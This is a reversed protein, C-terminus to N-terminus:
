RASTGAGSVGLAVITVPAGLGLEIRRRRGLLEGGAEVPVDDDLEIAVRECWFDHLHDSFYEGRFAAPTNRLIELLRPDGCRLQFRDPRAGAFAFMRLGFGFFPITAGAVLTCAGRWLVAGAPLARGTPGAPSVEIAPAGLNTVVATPRRGVAFRPVSRLAVSLAYRAAGGVLRKGGPVRDIARGIARQDELLQADAGVGAFPARLGLVEVLPLSRWTGEGRALRALDQAADRSAGIADALANGAGLRLLGLAPGPRGVAACAEAILAVGMVFTGDGGGLVILDVGRRVEDQIVARAEALSRTLRVRGPLVRELRAGAGGRVRRASGNVVAVARM